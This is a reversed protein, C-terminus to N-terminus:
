DKWKGITRLFAELRQVATAHILASRKGCVLWLNKYFKVERGKLAGFTEATHIDNLDYINFDDGYMESMAARQEELTMIKRFLM